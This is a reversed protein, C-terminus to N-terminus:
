YGSELGSAVNTEKPHKAEANGFLRGRSHGRKNCLSQPSRDTRPPSRDGMPSSSPETPCRKLLDQFWEGPLMVNMSQNTYGRQEDGAGTGSM